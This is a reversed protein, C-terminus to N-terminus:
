VRERFTLRGTDFFGPTGDSEILRYGTGTNSRSTRELICPFFSEPDDKNPMFEIEAKTIIYNMFEKLQSVANPNNEMFGVAKDTQYRINCTMFRNRGFTVSETRGSASENVVADVSDIDEDFNIFDQLRLQPIFEEGSSGGTYSSAGSQDVEFGALPLASTGANVGSDALLSFSSDGAITIQRNERDVTVVYNNESILNMARAIEQAFGTLTYGRPRLRAVFVEAGEQFDINRNNIDVTHGYYFKSRTFLTM